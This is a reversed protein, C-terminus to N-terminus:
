KAKTKIALPHNNYDVESFIWKVMVNFIYATQAIVGVSFASILIQYDKITLGEIQYFVANYVLYVVFLIEGLLIVPM